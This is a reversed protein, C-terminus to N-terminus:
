AGREVTAIEQQHVSLTGECAVEKEGKTPNSMEHDSPIGSDDMLMLDIPSSDTNSSPHCYLYIDVAFYVGVQSM